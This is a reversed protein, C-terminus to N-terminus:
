NASAPQSWQPFNNQSEVEIEIDDPLDAFFDFGTIQEVQDISMACQQMGGQVYGNNMVFGIGRPPNSYPALIVKFYREPVAVKSEGIYTTIEDSLVPGCVVVIASDRVAWERCKNELSNWAGGNLQSAQPCINTLLFCANMADLSWKMDGAPCMHGRDYGSGKYDALQSCGTVSNDPLFTAQNRNAVSAVSEEGTLEWAVWNPVHYDANFSLRFGPYDVIQSATGKPVGVYQLKDVNIGYEDASEQVPSYAQCAANAILCLIALASAM